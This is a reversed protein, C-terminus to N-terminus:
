KDGNVFPAIITEVLMNDDEDIFVLPVDTGMKIIFNDGLSNVVEPFSAGVGVSVDETDDEFKVFTDIFDYETEDGVRIKLENDKKEFKASTVDLLQMDKVVRILISKELEFEVTTPINPKDEKLLNSCIKQEALLTNVSRETNFIQLINNETKEVEVEESFTKLLEILMKSDKIYIEGLAEYEEFAEKKLLGVVVAIQATNKVATTIGDETFNLDITPITGSLSVKTIYQKFINVDIKM